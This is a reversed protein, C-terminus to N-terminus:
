RRIPRNANIQAKELLDHDAKRRDDIEGRTYCRTEAIHSGTQPEDICIVDDRSTSRKQEGATHTKCVGSPAYCPSGCGPTCMMVACTTVIVAGFRAFRM